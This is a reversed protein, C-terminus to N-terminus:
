HKRSHSTDKSTLKSEKTSRSSPYNMALTQGTPHQRRGYDYRHSRTNPNFSSTPRFETTLPQLKRVSSSCCRISRHGLTCLRHVAKLVSVNKRSSSIRELWSFFKRISKRILKPTKEHAIDGIGIGVGNVPRLKYTQTM